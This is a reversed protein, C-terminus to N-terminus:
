ASYMREFAWWVLVLEAILIAFVWLCVTLESVPKPHGDVGTPRESTPTTM